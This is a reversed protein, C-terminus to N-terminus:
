WSRISTRCAAANPAVDEGIRLIPGVQQTTYSAVAGGAKGTQLDRRACSLSKDLIKSLKAASKPMSGGQGRLIRIPAHEVHVNDPIFGGRHAVEFVQHFHQKQTADTIYIVRAAREENVRYCIAALETTIHQVVVKNPTGEPMTLIDGTLLVVTGEDEKVSVGRNCLHEVVNKVFPYYFSEGHDELRVNLRSYIEGFEARSVDCIARLARLSDPSGAQVKLAEAKSLSDLGPVEKYSREAKEPLTQLDEIETLGNSDGNFWAPHEDKIYALLRGFIRGRDGFHPQRLVDYGLFELVLAIADGLVTCCLHRFHMREM